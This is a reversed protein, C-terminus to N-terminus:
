ATGPRSRRAYTEGSSNGTPPMATWIAEWRECRRSHDPCPRVESRDTAASYSDGCYPCCAWGGHIRLGVNCLPCDAEVVSAIARMTDDKLRNGMTQPFQPV